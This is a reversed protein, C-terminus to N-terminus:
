VPDITSWFDCHHEASLDVGHIGGAGPALSQVRPVAAGTHFRPRNPLDEGNPNGEDPFLTWCGIMRDSLRQQVTTLTV